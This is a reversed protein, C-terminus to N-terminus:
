GIENMLLECVERNEIGLYRMTIAPSSHQYRKCLIEFGAGHQTRQLYGWSKRLSHTGYRGKLNIASTWSRVLRGVSQSSIHHNGKRSKFLFDDPAPEIVTLYAQLARHVAKNIVLVNDKGTKTEVINIVTGPKAGEVQSYKIRVLDKARLGNNIGTIWLLYDRPKSKLLRGIAKIDKIKRIPEVTLNSGKKISRSPTM